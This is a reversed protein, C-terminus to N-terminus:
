SINYGTDEAEKEWMREIHWLSLIAAVRGRLSVDEHLIYQKYQLSLPILFVDLDLDLNLFVKGQELDNAMSKLKEDLGDVLFRKLKKEKSTKDEAYKEFLDFLYGRLYEIAKYATALDKVDVQLLSYKIKSVTKEVEEMITKRIISELSESEAYAREKLAANTDGDFLTRRRKGRQIVDEVSEQHKIVDNIQLHFFYVFITRLLYEKLRETGESGELLDDFFRWTTNLYLNFNGRYCFLYEFVSAAMEDIIRDPDQNLIERIVDKDIKESSERIIPNDLLETIMGFVHGSEHGLQWWNEPRIMDQYPLNIVGSALAFTDNGFGFVTFGWWKEAVFKNVGRLLGMPIAKSARLIRQIGLGQLNSYAQSPHGLGLRAGAMRQELGFLYINEMDELEEYKRRNYDNVMIQPVRKIQSNAKRITAWVFELLDDVVNELGPTAAIAKLRLVMQNLQSSQALTINTRDTEWLQFKELKKNLNYFEKNIKEKRAQNKFDVHDIPYKVKIAENNLTIGIDTHTSIVETSFKTRLISLVKLLQDATKIEGDIKRKPLILLDRRGFTVDIELLFEGLSNNLEKEQRFRQELELMTYPLCSVAIRWNEVQGDVHEFSLGKDGNTDKRKVCPLTHSIQLKGQQRGAIAMDAVANLLSDLNNGSQIFIAEPWGLTSLLLTKGDLNNINNSIPAVLQAAKAEIGIGMQIVEQEDFKLLTITLACDFIFGDDQGYHTYCIVRQFDRINPHSFLRLLELDKEGRIKLIAVIDFESFSYYIHPNNTKFYDCFENCIEEESGSESQMFFIVYMGKGVISLSDEM